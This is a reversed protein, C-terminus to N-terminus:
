AQHISAAEWLHCSWVTDKFAIDGLARWGDGQFHTHMTAARPGFNSVYLRDARAKLMELIDTINSTYYLVECATILDFHRDGFHASVEELPLAAFKGEPCRRAARQVATESVDIGELRDAIENLFVSQHGEGCGLELVDGFHASISRLQVMTQAFRYRERDSAMEWPDELAYLLRIKEYKGGFATGKLMVRKWLDALTKPLIM